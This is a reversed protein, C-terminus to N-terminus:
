TNCKLIMNAHNIERGEMNVNEDKTAEIELAVCADYDERENSRRIVIVSGSGSANSM